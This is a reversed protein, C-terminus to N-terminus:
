NIRINRGKKIVNESPMEEVNEEPAKERSFDLVKVANQSIENEINKIEEIDRKITVTQGTKKISITGTNEEILKQEERKILDDKYASEEAEILPIVHNELELMREELFERGETITLAVQELNQNNEECEEVSLDHGKNQQFDVTENNIKELESIKDDIDQMIMLAENDKDLSYETVIKALRENYKDKQANYNFITKKLQNFAEVNKNFATEGRKQLDEKYFKDIQQEMREIEVLASQNATNLKQIVDDNIDVNEADAMVEILEALVSAANQKLAIYKSASDPTVKAAKADINKELNERVSDVLSNAINQQEKVLKDWYLKEAAILEEQAQKKQEEKAQYLKFLSSVNVDAIPNEMGNKLSFAFEPLYKSENYKVNFVMNMDWTTLDGDGYVTINANANQMTADALSYKGNEFIARGAIKDFLTKGSTVNKKVVEVLGESVERNILDNYIATLDIGGVEVGTAKFEAKGKLGEVFSQVSDAKSSFDFKESFKGGKLNYIKGGIAFDNVNAGDLKFSGNVTPNENMYLSIKAEIPTDKYTASFDSVNLVGGIKELKFKADNILYDKYSLEKVAFEGKVDFNSYPAYDIKEKSLFPKPLFDFEESQAAVNILASKSKALLKDADLRNIALNGMVAPRDSINEYNMEGTASTYGVNFSLNKFSMSEKNGLIKTNLKFIGLNKAEPVYSSKINELLTSLEPHKIELDGDYVVKGTENVVFGKYAVNLNGITFLTNIGLNDITGNITGSMNLNNFKKYDLDPVNLELKNILSAVDNSKVEYQLNEAKPEEGFGSLKGKIELATNAMKETKAYEIEMVGNLVNGKVDVKEFPMSEYILLGAKADLVLDIDNLFGLKGFRYVMREAWTKNKEEEPLSAIYNDFNITDTNVVLMIDKRNGLVIGAEGSATSKDMTIKYPSIQIREFNGSIKATALLKKYVAVANIKPRLNLWEMTEIFNNSAVTTDAQYYLEDDYSYITGKLKLETNGPLIVNFNDITLMEKDLGFEVALNKFGQGQYSVRVAKIEADLNVPYQPNFPEEKYKEFLEEMVNVVPELELDSFNFSMDVETKAKNTLPMELVGAGQTNGYKIVINSMGLKQQDLVFDFGLAIPKNYDSSIKVDDFNANIFDSLKQSEMIVNGNLMKNALRFGGDFRVYSESLPHTVVLNLSTISADSLEGISLAFGEPSNGKLYNGEIRFPGFISQAFIEGNLDTLKFEVNSSSDEFNLEANRLSVSNLIMNTDEMMQRQDPSLDSQWSLGEDSWDINIVAGDLIMKKVHVEGKILPMLALEAVVNKIELLPKGRKSKDNYVKAEAANLYPTPFIRFSLKGDFSVVKGTSNYFQEAIKDKHQNWDINTVYLAVGALGVLLLSVLGLVIKKVIFGRIKLFWPTANFTFLRQLRLMRHSNYLM